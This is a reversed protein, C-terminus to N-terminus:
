LGLQSRIKTTRMLPSREPRQVPSNRVNFFTYDIGKGIIIIRDSTITKNELYLYGYGEGALNPKAGSEPFPGNIPTAEFESIDGDNSFRSGAFTVSNGRILTDVSYGLYGWSNMTDGVVGFLWNHYFYVQYYNANSGSWSITIPTGIAVTDRASITLNKITDPVTISGAIEGLDTKIKITIPNFKPEPISDMWIRDYSYFELKGQYYYSLAPDSFKKNCILFYNMSPMPDGSIDGYVDISPITIREWTPARRGSYYYRVYVLASQSSSVSATSSDSKKDCGCFIAAIIVLISFMIKYNKM